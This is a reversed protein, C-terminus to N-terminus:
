GAIPRWSSTRRSSTPCPASSASSSRGPAEVTPASLDLCGVMIKKADLKALVSCDLKSQATEISVQTCACAALEPRFSYGSPRQHVRRLRLLHAGGDHRHHGRAGPQAGDARVAPREFAAGAHVDRRDARHRRRGRLPRPYGREPRLMPIEEQRPRAAHIARWVREPTAPMEIREVGPEAPRASPTRSEPFSM